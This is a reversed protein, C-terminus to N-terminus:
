LSAVARLNNGVVLGTVLVALALEISPSHRDWGRWIRDLRRLGAGEWRTLRRRRRASAWLHLGVLHRALVWFSVVGVVVRATCIVGPGVAGMAAAMWPSGEVGIGRRRIVLWTTLGDGASLAAGVVFLSRALGALVSADRSRTM